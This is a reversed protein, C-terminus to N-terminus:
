LGKVRSFGWSQAITAWCAWVKLPAGNGAQGGSDMCLGNVGIFQASADKLTVKWALNAQGSCPGLVVDAGPKADGAAQVCLDGIMLHQSTLDYSFLQGISNNCDYMQLRAGQTFQANPVDICRAPNQASSQIAMQVIQPAPPALATSGDPQVVGAIHAPTKVPPPAKSKLWCTTPEQSPDYEWAHCQADALCAMQCLRADAMSLQFHHYDEGPRGINQEYTPKFAPAQGFAVGTLLAFSIATSCVAATRHRTLQMVAGQDITRLPPVKDM